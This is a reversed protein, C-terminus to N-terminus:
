VNFAGLRLSEPTVSMTTVMPQGQRTFSVTQVQTGDANTPVSNYEPPFKTSTATTNAVTNIITVITSTLWIANGATNVIENGPTAWAYIRVHVGLQCSASCESETETLQRQHLAPKALAAVLPLSSWLLVSPLSHM